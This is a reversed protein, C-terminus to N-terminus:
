INATAASAEGGQLLEHSRLAIFLLGLKSTLSQLVLELNPTLSVRSLTEFGAPFGVQCQLGANGTKGTASGSL